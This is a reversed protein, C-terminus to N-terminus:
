KEQIFYKELSMERKMALDVIEQDSLRDVNIVDVMAMPFGNFAATGYYDKIDNRLKQIDIMM